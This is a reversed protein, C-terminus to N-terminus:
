EESSKIITKIKLNLGAKETQKKKKLKSIILFAESKNFKVLTGLSEAQLHKLHWLLIQSTRTFASWVARKARCLDWVPPGM